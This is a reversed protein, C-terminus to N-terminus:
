PSAIWLVFFFIGLIVVTAGLNEVWRRRIRRDDGSSGEASAAIPTEITADLWKDWYRVFCPQREISTPVLSPVSIETPTTVVDPMRSEPGPWEYGCKRCRRELTENNKSYGAAGCEYCLM